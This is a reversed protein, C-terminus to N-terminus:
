ARSAPQNAAETPRPAFRWKGLKCVAMVFWVTGVVSTIVVLIPALNIGIDLVVALAYISLASVPMLGLAVLNRVPIPGELAHLLDSGTEQQQNWRLVVFIVGMLPPLLAVAWPVKPATNLAFTAGALAVVAWFLSERPAFVQPSVKGTVWFALALVGTFSLTYAAFQPITTIQDPALFWWTLAWVGWFLGFAIALHAARGPGPARLAKGLLYWGLVITIPAHWALGTFAVQWPFDDYMTQVIIGEIFWGFAAGALFLAWLTRIRFRRILILVLWTSFVYGLWTEIWSILSDTPQPRAWFLPESFFMCVFGHALVFLLRSLWKKM